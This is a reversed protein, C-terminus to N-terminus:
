TQSFPQQRDISTEDNQKDELEPLDLVLRLENWLPDDVRKSFKMYLTAAIQSARFMKRVDDSAVVSIYSEESLKDDPIIEKEGIEEALTPHVLNAFEFIQVDISNLKDITM